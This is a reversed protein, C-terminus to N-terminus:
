FHTQHALEVRAVSRCVHPFGPDVDLYSRFLFRFQKRCGLNFRFRLRHSLWCRCLLSFLSLSLSLPSFFLFLCVCLCVCTHTLWLGSIWCARLECNRTSTLATQKSRGSTGMLLYFPLGAAQFVQNQRNAVLYGMLGMTFAMCLAMLVIVIYEVETVFLQQIYERQSFVPMPFIFDLNASSAPSVIYLVDKGDCQNIVLQKQQNIGFRNTSLLGYFSSQYYLKLQTQITEKTIPTESLEIAGELMTLGALVAAESYGPTGTPKNMLSRWLAQFQQPSSDNVLKGGIQHPFLSWSASDADELYDNGNLDPSWQASGMVYSIAHGADATQRAADVCAATALSSPAYDAARFAQLWMACNQTLLVLGEPANARLEQLVSPILLAEAEAATLGPAVTNVPRVYTVQLNLDGAAMKIGEVVTPYLPVSTYVVGISTVKKTKMLGVWPQFYQEGSSALSHAYEFRRTNVVKCNFPLGLPPVTSPCKYLVSNPSNSAIAPIKARELAPMANVWNSGPTLIVFDVFPLLSSNGIFYKNVVTSLEDLSASTGTVNAWVFQVYIGHLLWGKQEIRRVYWESMENFGAVQCTLSKPDACRFLGIRLCSGDAANCGPLAAPSGQVFSGPPFPQAVLACMCLPFLASLAFLLLCGVGRMASLFPFSPFPHSVFPLSPFPLPPSLLPRRTPAPLTRSRVTTSEFTLIHARQM